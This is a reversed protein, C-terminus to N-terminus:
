LQLSIYQMEGIMAVAEQIVSKQHMRRLAIRGALAVAQMSAFRSLLSDYAEILFDVYSPSENDSSSNSFINDDEGNHDDYIISYTESSSDDHSRIALFELNIFSGSLQSM